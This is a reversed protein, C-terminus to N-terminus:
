SRLSEHLRSAFVVACMQLIKERKRFTKAPTKETLLLDGEAFHKKCFSKYTISSKMNSLKRRKKKKALVGASATNGAVTCPIRVELHGVICFRTPQSVGCTSSASLKHARGILLDGTAPYCSGETCVDAFEPEQTWVPCWLAASPLLM